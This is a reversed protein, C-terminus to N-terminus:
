QTTLILTVISFIPVTILGRITWHMTWSNDPGRNPQGRTTWNALQGTRSKVLGRNPIDALQGAVVADIASIRHESWLYHANQKTIGSNLSQVATLPTCSFIMTPLCSLRVGLLEVGYYAYMPISQAVDKM